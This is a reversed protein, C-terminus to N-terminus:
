FHVRCSQPPQVPKRDGYFTKGVSTQGVNIDDSQRISRHFFGDPTDARDAAVIGEGKHFPSGGYAQSGRIHFFGTGRIIQRNQGRQQFLVNQRFYRQFVFAEDSFQRQGTFQAGAFPNQGHAQGCALFAQCFDKYGQFIGQFGGNHIGHGDIANAMYLVHYAMQQSFFRKGRRHIRNSSGPVKYGFHIKGVDFPLLIGFPRNFNSGGPSM